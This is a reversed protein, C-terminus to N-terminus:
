KHMRSRVRENGVVLFRDLQNAHHTLVYALRAVKLALGRTSLRFYIVGRHPQGQRFVLDGFDRDDTILIRQQAYAIALVQQDPLSPQYHRAVSTVDHGTNALFDALRTDVSEDLLFKM